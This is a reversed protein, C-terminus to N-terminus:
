SFHGHYRPLVRARARLWPILVQNTPADILVNICADEVSCLGINYRSFLDHAKAARAAILAPLVVYVRQAFVTNRYAQHIARRWDSLKAEFAILEGHETRTLVDTIGTRYDWELAIDVPGWPTEDSELESVFRSVLDSERSFGLSTQNARSTNAAM